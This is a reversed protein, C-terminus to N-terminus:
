THVYTDNVMNTRLWTHLTCGRKRNRVYQDLRGAVLGIRVEWGVNKM